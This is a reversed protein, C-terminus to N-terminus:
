DVAMSTAEEEKPRKLEMSRKAYENPHTVHEGDGVGQGKQVGYKQHTIEFVRTCAVHYHSSKVHQMIEPLDTVTLGQSGYSSLLASELNEPNFYRYPCAYEPTESTLLQQCSKAPYNMRKGELGFSHRINYKYRKNFEDDTLRNFSKRWFAMAEEITLGLVKLFLGYNLRGYHKLHRDKRLSEHMVRMCLPFHAPALDDIMEAKIESGSGDGAGGTWESPVGAIFGHSLNNLIPILRSDEDLSPVARATLELAQTLNSEFEQLIISLQEKSPVYAWGGKLFVRRKEVLDPVSTWKVKLFTESSVWREDAKNHQNAAVLQPRFKEKEENSVPIWNFSRSQLFAEREKTDDTEYRMRFLTLESKIFRRRLDESRCFALRLVFHGLHDRRRETEKDVFSATNSNLPLYKRCQTGM